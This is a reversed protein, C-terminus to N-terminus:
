GWAAPRPQLATQRNSRMQSQHRKRGPRGISRINLTTETYPQRLHTFCTLQNFYPNRAFGDTWEVNFDLLIWSVLRYWHRRTVRGDCYIEM